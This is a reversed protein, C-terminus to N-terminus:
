EVKIYIWLRERNRQIKRKKGVERIRANDRIYKDFFHLYTRLADPLKGDYYSDYELERNENHWKLRLLLIRVEEIRLSDDVEVEIMAAGKVRKGGLSDPLSIYSPLGELVHTVERIPDTIEAIPEEEKGSSGLRTVRPSCFFFLMSMLALGTFLEQRSGMLWKM